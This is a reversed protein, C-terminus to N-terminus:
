EEGRAFRAKIDSNRYLDLDHEDATGAIVREVVAKPSMDRSNPTQPRGEPRTIPEKGNQAEALKAKVGAAIAKQAEAPSMWGDSKLRQEAAQGSRDLLDRVFADFQPMLREASETLAIDHELGLAEAAAASFADGVDSLTRATVQGERKMSYRDLVVQAASADEVGYRSLHAQLLETAEQRDAELRQKEQAALANQRQRKRQELQAKRSEEDRQRRLEALETELKTLRDPEGQSDPAAAAPAEEAAATLDVQPASETQPTAPEPDALIPEEEIAQTVM